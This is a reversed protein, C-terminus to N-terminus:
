LCITIRYQDKLRGHAQETRDSSWGAHRYRCLHLVAHHHAVGCVAPGPFEQHFDVPPDPYGRRQEVVQGTADCPVTPLLERLYPQIRATVVGVTLIQM